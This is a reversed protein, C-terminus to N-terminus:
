LFWNFITLNKWQNKQLKKLPIHETFSCCVNKECGLMMIAHKDFYDRLVETHGKYKIDAKLGLSKILQYLVFLMLKM